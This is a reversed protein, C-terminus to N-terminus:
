EIVLSVEKSASLYNGTEESSITVPYTGADTYGQTPAYALETESHNLTASVNKVTGDYTFTQTADATIIAEAKKIVLDATLVKDNYNEQSVTATVKYTGANTQGNNAYKVTAGEPLASVSISKSNGDYTFAKNEFTVGTIEANEIVLSVEKSASLYNDTEASAVVVPYTGADTYGQSPAYALETESHNLTATINKFTGDYTFTQTADATIIAEAKKIVLDATLVKDNYNEQSVTATVKYTGANIQGNNAYKVTAGKPIASVSISKSDGDYTFAKNEFTVGAIEANDIVLSVEKTASLYNDTEEALITVPYTGADTYGQTPSYALETETHNLMAAANKITGDFTFTQVADATIIAQAKNITFDATEYILSYNSDLSLTGQEIVYVGAKEGTERNLEGTFTDDGVLAGATIQYFLKPDEAGYIKSKAEASVTVTAKSVTLTQKVPPAALHQDNGVQSATIETTGAKLIIAQNGSISVIDPDQATYIVTLEKDTKEDGLIFAPDGYTKVSIEPFNIFQDQKTTIFTWINSSAEIAEINNNHDDRVFGNSIGVSLTTNAPLNETIEFSLTLKDESLNFKERDEWVSLDYTQVVGNADELTLIGSSNLEVAEDFTVSLTPQLAVETTQHAPSFNKVVPATEDVPPTTTISTNRYLISIPGDSARGTILVDQDNDGDIDSFAVSGSEVGRFPMNFIETFGGTGDNVYLKAIQNYNMDYGTIMVDQFGDGDVDAFDISSNQVGALSTGSLESYNGSGDNKYLKAITTRDSYSYGTIMVDQDGDLDVDAFAISGQSVGLFPTETIESYKGSGDNKYLKAIYNSYQSSRGTILVDQDGDGDVDAFAISSQQVGTFPTGTIESFNGSGDNKYLKASVNLSSNGWRGTILVDPDGDADVDGFAISGNQVGALSTGTSESYSGSGDNKYLKAIGNYTNDAGTILVDQDDDKDVDAFAIAGNQVGMFPTGTIKSFNGSGDNKYLKAIGNYTNDHGTILVDQDGNGDIDAFAISSNQVGTFFMGTPEVYNGAGINVYLKVVPNYSNGAGTIIVDQDNDGDIDAFGISSYQVGAFSNNIDETYNGYGDNKYLKSLSNYTNDLGTILVDQDGDGDGDAFAVSGYEVGEFATNPVETYNGAGNNSYLKAIRTNSNDRGSIFVDNSGDGNIDAFTVSSNRVGPFPTDTSETFNGFGNNIYLTTIGGITSQGTILLDKDNDGDVDAFAISGYQVGEFINNSDQTYHGNGDNLYLIASPVGEWTSGAFGTILVDQDGDTDVDAFALSSNQVGVFPTDLFETYNGLGDNLYLYAQPEAMEPMGMMGSSGGTILVDQDGDGDVDAFAVSGNQVGKFPAGAVEKYLGFGDNLYLIASAGEGEITGGNMGSGGAILVDQDGDGDVDAFAISSNQVGEFSPIIQPAPPPPMVQEFTQAFAIESGLCLIVLILIKSIYNQKM